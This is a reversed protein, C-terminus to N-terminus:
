VIYEEEKNYGAAALTVLAALMLTMVALLILIAKGGPANWVIAFKSM